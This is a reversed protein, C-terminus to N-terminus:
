GKKKKTKDVVEIWRKDVGRKELSKVVADKQPGQVMVEMVPNKSSSGVLQDVSTSGACVKRLEDALPQPPIYFPELGSVKTVTKNGSRTELTVLIKPVNGSKPKGGTFDDDGSGSRLIVYYASCNGDTIREMLVDRPIAGKENYGKDNSSKGTLITNALFPDLKVLRKNKDDALEEAEIYGDVVPRLEALSYFAQPNSASPEFLPSLKEKPKYLTL